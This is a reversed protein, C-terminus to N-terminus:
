GMSLPGVLVVMNGLIGVNYDFGKGSDMGQSTSSEIELWEMLIFVGMM